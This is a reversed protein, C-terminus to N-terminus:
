GQYCVLAVAVYRYLEVQDLLHVLWELRDDAGKTQEPFKGSFEGYSYLSDLEKVLDQIEMVHPDNRNTEYLTEAEQM